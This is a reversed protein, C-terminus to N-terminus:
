LNKLSTLGSFIKPPLSAIANERLDRLSHFFCSIFQCARVNDGYLIAYSHIYMTSQQKNAISSSAISECSPSTEVGGLPARSWGELRIITSCGTYSLNYGTTLTVLMYYFDYLKKRTINNKFVYNYCSFDSHKICYVRCNARPAKGEHQAM